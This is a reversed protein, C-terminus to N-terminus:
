LFDFVLSGSNSIVTLTFSNDDCNVVFADTAVAGPELASPFEANVVYGRVDAGPEVDKFPLSWDVWGSGQFVEIDDKPFRLMDSGVNEVSVGVGCYGDFHKLLQATVRLGHATQKEVPSTSCAALLLISALGITAPILRRM